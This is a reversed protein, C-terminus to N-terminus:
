SGVLAKNPLAPKETLDVQKHTECWTCHGCEEPLGVSSDGFYAALARSFCRPSTVLNFHRTRQLDRQGQTELTNYLEDAIKNIDQYETPLKKLLPYVKQVRSVKLEFIGNTEWENLKNVVDTRLLGASRCLRGINIHCYKQALKAASRTPKATTCDDNHCQAQTVIFYKYESYKPTRARILGFQLELQEYFHNGFDCVPPV